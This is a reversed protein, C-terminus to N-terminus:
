RDILSEREAAAAQAAARRQRLQQGVFPALPMQEIQRTQRELVNKGQGVLIHAFVAFPGLAQMVDGFAINALSLNVAQVAIGTRFDFTCPIGFGVATVEGDAAARTEIVADVAADLLASQDLGAVSRQTRHHVALGDDVAGALLKTGGMDVGITRRAPMTTVIHLGPHRVLGVVPFFVRARRAPPEGTGTGVPLVTLLGFAARLGDM